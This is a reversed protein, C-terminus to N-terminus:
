MIQTLRIISLLILGLGIFRFVLRLPTSERIPEMWFWMTTRDFRNIETSVRNVTMLAKSPAAFMWAGAYILTALAVLLLYIM